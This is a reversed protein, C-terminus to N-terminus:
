ETAQKEGNEEKKAKEAPNDEVIEEVKAVVAQNKETIDRLKGMLKNLDNLKEQAFQEIISKAQEIVANDGVNM